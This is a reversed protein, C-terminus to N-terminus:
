APVDGSTPMLLVECVVNAKKTGKTEKQEIPQPRHGQQTKRPQIPDGPNFFKFPHCERVPQVGTRRHHSKGTGGNSRGVAVVFCDPAIKCDDSGGSEERRTGAKLIV